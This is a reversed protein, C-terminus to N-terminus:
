LDDGRREFFRCVLVSVVMSILGAIISPVIIDEPSASGLDSRIKIVAVPVLQIM